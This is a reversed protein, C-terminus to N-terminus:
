VVNARRRTVDYQYQFTLAFFETAEITSVSTVILPGLGATNGFPNDDFRVDKVAILFPEYFQYLKKRRDGIDRSSNDVLAISGQYRFDLIQSQIRNTAIQIPVGNGQPTLICVPTRTTERAQIIALDEVSTYTRVEIQKIFNGNADSANRIREILTNEVFEFINSM